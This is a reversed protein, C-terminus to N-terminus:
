VPPEIMDIDANALPNLTTQPDTIKIWEVRDLYVVKGGSLGSPPELRPKYDKFKDYITREGPRWLDKRFVFPGSGITESIQVNGPTQAIRKPMIFPVLSSPKGRTELVLGCPEKLVM